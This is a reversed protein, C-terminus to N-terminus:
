GEAPPSSGSTVEVPAMLKVIPLLSGPEHLEVLHTMRGWHYVNDGTEPELLHTIVRGLPQGTRVLRSGAPARHVVDVEAGIELELATRNRNAGEVFRHGGLTYARVRLEAEAALVETEIGHRALLAAAADAEPPLLYAWPRDRERTAVPEKLIPADEITLLEGERGPYPIRFTVREPSPAMEERVPITGETGEGLRITEARAMEVTRVLEPGRVHALLLIRELATVGVAVSETMGPWATLEFLIGVRGSLGLYNRGMRPASGGAIWGEEDGRSWYFGRYGSAELGEVLHPFVEEDAFATLSPDAGALGPGQFLLHYPYAGGYQVDGGDHGDVVLHPNWRNLLRDVYAATAPEDLAMYDRNLDSGLANFRSERVLGDPNKSPVILVIVEDLLANLETGPTGLERMLVLLSERLVYNFGHVNAGLLVIPRGSRQAEEPDAVVPRSFLAFPLDRGEITTGYTEMELDSALREVEELYAMMEDHSTHHAFGSLEAPTRLAQLSDAATPAPAQSHAPQPLLGEALVPLLLLAAAPLWPTRPM